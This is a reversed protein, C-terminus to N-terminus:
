DWIWVLRSDRILREFPLITDERNFPERLRADAADFLNSAERSETATRVNSQFLDSNLAEKWHEFICM